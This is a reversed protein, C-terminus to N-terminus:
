GAAGRGGGVARTPMDCGPRLAHGLTVCSGAELPHAEYKAYTGAEAVPEIQPTELEIM